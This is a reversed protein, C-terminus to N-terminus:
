VSAEKVWAQIEEFTRGPADNVFPIPLQTGFVKKQAELLKQGVQFREEGDPYCRHMAGILCWSCALLSDALVPCGDKDRASSEQCWKKPNDFLEQM